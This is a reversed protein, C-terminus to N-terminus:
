LFLLEEEEEEEEEKKKKEEEEKKKKEKKSRRRRLYWPTQREDLYLYVHICFDFKKKKLHQQRDAVVHVPARDPSAREPEVKVHKGLQRQEAGGVV